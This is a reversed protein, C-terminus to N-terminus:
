CAAACVLREDFEEGTLWIRHMIVALKRAVAVRAKGFGKEKQIRLGWQRLACTSRSHCLLNSAAEVLLWRLLVDGQKTIRGRIETGGSQYISPVLGLYSSVQEGTAFRKPDDVTAVFTAATAPGISPVSMLLKCEPDKKAIQKGLVVYMAAARQSVEVWTKLLPAIARKLMPEAQKLAVRVNHEFVEGSGSPLKTGHARFLGQIASKLAVQTKVLQSRATMFSRLGRAKGSKRHVVTYWGVRALQALKRADIRDTKKKTHTVAKAQRPDIINIGHGSEEVIGCMWEALATAEVVCRLEKFKGFFRRVAEEETPIETESVLAGDEDIVCISTSENSLDIGCYRKM